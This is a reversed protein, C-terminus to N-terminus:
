GNEQEENFREQKITQLQVLVRKRFQLFHKKDKIENKWFTGLLEDGNKDLYDWIENIEALTHRDCLDWLEKVFFTAKFANNRTKEEHENM